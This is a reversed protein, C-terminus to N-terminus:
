CIAVHSLFGEKNITEKVNNVDCLVCMYAPLFSKTRVLKCAVLLCTIGLLELCARSVQIVNLVRDFINVTLYLTDQALKFKRRLQTLQKM